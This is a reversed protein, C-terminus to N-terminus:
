THFIFICLRLKTEYYFVWNGDCLNFVIVMQIMKLIDYSNYLKNFLINKHRIFFILTKYKMTIIMNM